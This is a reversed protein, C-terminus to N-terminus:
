YSQADTCTTSATTAFTNEGTYDGLAQVEPIKIKWYIAENEVDLDHQNRV